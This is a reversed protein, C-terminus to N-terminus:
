ITKIMIVGHHGPAYTNPLLGCAMFGLSCLWNYQGSRAGGLDQLQRWPETIPQGHCSFPTSGIIYSISAAGNDRGWEECKNMLPTLPAGVDLEGNNDYGTCNIEMIKYQPHYRCLIWATPGLNDKIYWGMGAQLQNAAEQPTPWWSPKIRSMLCSVEHIDACIERLEM